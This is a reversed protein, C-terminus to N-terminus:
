LKKCSLSLFLLLCSLLPHNRIGLRLNVELKESQRKKKKELFEKQKWKETLKPKWSTNKMWQLIYFLSLEDYVEYEKIIFWISSHKLIRPPPTLHPDPNVRPRHTPSSPLPCLLDFTTTRTSPFVCTHTQDTFVMWYIATIKRWAVPEQEQGWVCVCVCVGQGGPFCGGGDTNLKSCPGRRQIQGESGGGRWVRVAPKFSARQRLDLILDPDIKPPSLFAEHRLAVKDCLDGLGRGGKPRWQGILPRKSWDIDTHTPSRRPGPVQPAASVPAALHCMCVSKM